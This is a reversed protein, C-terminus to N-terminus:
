HEREEPHRINGNTESCVTFGYRIEPEALLRASFDVLNREYKRAHRQSRTVGIPCVSEEREFRQDSETM